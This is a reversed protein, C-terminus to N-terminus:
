SLALIVGMVMLSIAYYGNNLYWLKWSKGEWLVSTLTVPVIFGVWSWLGVTFGASVGSTGTFTSAFVLAHALVYSMLLSGILAVAYPKAMGRTKAAALAEGTMGIQRMWLKGFLLGYWLAGLVMSAVAAGLVAWYNLSVAM